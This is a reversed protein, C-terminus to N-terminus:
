WSIFGSIIVGGGWFEWRCSFSSITIIIITIIIIIITAITSSVITFSSSLM